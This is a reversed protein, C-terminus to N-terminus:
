FGKSSLRIIKVTKLKSFLQIILLDKQKQKIRFMNQVKDLKVSQYNCEVHCTLTKMVIIQEIVKPKSAKLVLNGKKEAKLFRIILLSCRRIKEVENKNALVKETPSFLDQTKQNM